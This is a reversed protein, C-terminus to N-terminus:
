KWGKRVSLPWQLWMLHLIRKNECLAQFRQLRVLMLSQGTNIVVVQKLMLCVHSIRKFLKVTMEEIIRRNPETVVTEHSSDLTAATAERM